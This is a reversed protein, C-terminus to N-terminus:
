LLEILPVTAGYQVGNADFLPVVPFAAANEFVGQMAYRHFDTTAAPDLACIVDGWLGRLRQLEAIGDLVERQNAATIKLAFRRAASAARRDTFTYGYPTTVRVDRADFALPTGELDFNTAPQWAQGIVLRGAEIYTQAASPDAIDVRAYLVAAGTSWKLLSLRVPWSPALPKGSTPWASRWGTDIDPATTLNELAVAARLRIVAAESLNHGVLALANVNVPSAFAVTVYASTALARWVKQPQMSQLNGVPLASLEASATLTAADSDRPSLLLLREGGNTFSSWPQVAGLPLTGYPAPTTIM